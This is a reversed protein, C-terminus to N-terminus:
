SITFARCCPKCGLIKKTREKDISKTAEFSILDYPNGADEPIVFDPYKVVAKEYM